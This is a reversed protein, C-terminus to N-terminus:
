PSVRPSEPASRSRLTSSSRISSREVGPSRSRMASPSVANMWYEEPEVLAGLPTTSVCRLRSLLISAIMAPARMVRSSESSLQIGSVWSMPSM